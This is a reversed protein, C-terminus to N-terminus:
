DDWEVRFIHGPAPTPISTLRLNKAHAMRGGEEIIGQYFSPMGSVDNFTLQIAAPGLVEANTVLYNNGASMSLHMRLLSRRVGILRIVGLLAKGVLTDTYGRMSSAGLEFLAQELTLEKFLRKHALELGARVTEIPYAPELRSLNLGIGLLEKRLEPTLRAGLGKNFIGDIVPEFWLRQTKSNM